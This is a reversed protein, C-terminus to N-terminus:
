DMVKVLLDDSHTRIGLQANYLKKKFLPMLKKVSASFAAYDDFGCTIYFAMEPGWAHEYRNCREFAEEYVGYYLDASEVMQAYTMSPSFTTTAFLVHQPKDTMGRSTMSVLHDSHAGFLQTDNEAVAPQPGGDIITAFHDLDKFVCSTYFGRQSGYQHQYMTCDSFGAKEESKLYEALSAQIASPSGGGPIEYTSFLAMPLPTQENEAHHDANVVAPALSVLILLMTKKM